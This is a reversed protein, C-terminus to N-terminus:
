FSGSKMGFRKNSINQTAWDKDFGGRGPRRSPNPDPAHSDQLFAILAPKDMIANDIGKLWYDWWELSLQLFGIMPGPGGLNPFVHAWAGSVVRCPANINELLRIVTNPWCDNWGSIGLVPVKIKDFNECVSGHSWTRDRICM